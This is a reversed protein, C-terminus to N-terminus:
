VHARGIQLALCAQQTVAGRATGAGRRPAALCGAAWGAYARSARSSGPTDRPGPPLRRAECSEGQVRTTGVTDRARRRVAPLTRAGALDLHWTLIATSNPRSTRM